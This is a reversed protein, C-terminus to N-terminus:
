IGEDLLMDESYIPSCSLEVWDPQEVAYDLTFQSAEQLSGDPKVWYCGNESWVWYKGTSSIPGGHQRSGFYRMHGRGVM